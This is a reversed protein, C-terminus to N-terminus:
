SKPTRVELYNVRSGRIAVRENRSLNLPVIVHKLKPCDYFMDSCLSGRVTHATLVYKDGKRELRHGKLRIPKMKLIKRGPLEMLSDEFLCIATQGYTNSDGSWWKKFTERFGSVRTRERYPVNYRSPLMYRSPSSPYKKDQYTPRWSRKNYEVRESEPIEIWDRPTYSPGGQVWHRWLMIHQEADEIVLYPEKSEVIRAGSLDLIALSGNEGAMKRLTVIDASNIKGVIMLRSCTDKQEQTLLSELTGAKKVNIFTMMEGSYDNQPNFSIYLVTKWQEPVFTGDDAYHGGPTWKPMMKIIRKIEYIIEREPNSPKLIDFFKVTGDEAVLVEAKVNYAKRSNMAYPYLVNEKLFQELKEEGGPFEPGKSQAMACSFFSIFFSLLFFRIMLMTDYTNCIYLIKESCTLPLSRM